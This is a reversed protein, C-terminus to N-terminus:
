LDLTSDGTNFIEEDEDDLIAVSVVVSGAKILEIAAARIKADEPEDGDVIVLNASASTCEDDFKIATETLNEKLEDIEDENYVGDTNITFVLKGM